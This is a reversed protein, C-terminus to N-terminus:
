RIARRQYTVPVIDGCELCLDTGTDGVYDFEMEVGGSAVVNADDTAHAGRGAPAM